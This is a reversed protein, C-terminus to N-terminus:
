FYHFYKTEKNNERRPLATVVFYSFIVYTVICRLQDKSTDDFGVKMRKGSNTIYAIGVICKDLDKIDAYLINGSPLIPIYLVNETKDEERLLLSVFNVNEEMIKNNNDSHTLYTPPAM